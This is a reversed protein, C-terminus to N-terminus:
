PTSKLWIWFRVNHFGYFTDGQYAAVIREGSGIFRNTPPTEDTELAYSDDGLIRFWELQIPPQPVGSSPYNQPLEVTVTNNGTSFYYGTPNIGGAIYAGPLDYYPYVISAAVLTKTADPVKVQLTNSKYLGIPIGSQRTKIAVYYYGATQIPRTTFNVSEGPFIECLEQTPCVDWPDEAVAKTTNSEQLDNIAIQMEYNGPLYRSLNLIKEDIFSSGVSDTTIITNLDGTYEVIALIDSGLRVPQLQSLSERSSTSLYYASNILIIILVTVAIAADLSFVVGHKNKKRRM